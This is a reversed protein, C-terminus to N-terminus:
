WIEFIPYPVGVAPKLNGFGLNFNLTGVNRFSLFFSIVLWMNVFMSKQMLIGGCVLLEIAFGANMFCLKQLCMRGAMNSFLFSAM